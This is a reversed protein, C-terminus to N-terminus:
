KSNKRKEAEPMVVPMKTEKQRELFSKSFITGCAKGEGDFIRYQYNKRIHICLTNGHGTMRCDELPIEVQRGDALLAGSYFFGKEARDDSEISVSIEEKEPEETEKLFATNREQGERDQGDLLSFFEHVRKTEKKVAKAKEKTERIKRETEEKLREM